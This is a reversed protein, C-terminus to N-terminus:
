LLDVFEEVTLGSLRILTRLTGRRLVRHHPVSLMKQQDTSHYLIVHSGTQHDVVFGARVFARVAREGSVDRPLKAM